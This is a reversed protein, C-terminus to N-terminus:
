VHIAPIRFVIRLILTIIVPLCVISLSTIILINTKHNTQLQLQGIGAYLTRLFIFSILTFMQGIFINGLAEGICHFMIYVTYSYVTLNLADSDSYNLKNCLYERVLLYTAWGGGMAAAFHIVGLGFSQLPTYHILQLLFVIVSLFVTVPLLYNRFVSNVTANEEWVKSWAMSPQLLMQKTRLFIHKYNTKM